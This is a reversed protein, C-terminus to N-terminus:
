RVRQSWAVSVAWSPTGYGCFPNEEALVPGATGPKAALNASTAFLAAIGTGTRM